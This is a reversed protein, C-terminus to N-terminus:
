KPACAKLYGPSLPHGLFCLHVVYKAGLLSPVCRFQADISDDHPSSGSYFPALCLPPILSM